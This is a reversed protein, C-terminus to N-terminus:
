ATERKTPPIIAELIEDSRHNIASCIEFTLTTVTGGTARPTDGGRMVTGRTLFVRTLFNERVDSHTNIGFVDHVIRCKLSRKRCWGGTKTSLNQLINATRTDYLTTRSHKGPPVHMTWWKRPSGAKLTRQGRYGPPVASAPLFFFLLPRFLRLHYHCPSGPETLRRRM